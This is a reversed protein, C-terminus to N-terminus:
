KNLINKNNKVSKSKNENNKNNFNKMNNDKKSRNNYSIVKHKNLNNNRVSKKSNTYHCVLIELHRIMMVKNM